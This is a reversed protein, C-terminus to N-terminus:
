ASASPLNRKLHRYQRKPTNLKKVVQYGGAVPLPAAVLLVIGYRTKRDMDIATDSLEKSTMSTPRADVIANLDQAESLLKAAGLLIGVEAIAGVVLAAVAEKRM